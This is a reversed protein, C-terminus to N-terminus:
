LTSVGRKQVVVTACQNAYKISENINKTEIYKKVLGALFTDGAGSLDKVQAEKVPYKEGLHEAGEAGLTIILKERVSDTIGQSSGYEANNIKIYTALDCWKGIPKKTDLFTLSHQKCIRRIDQKTLYGKNYDSIIVASYKSFDVQSLDCRGYQDEGSDMRLFMYNTNQEVIRTKTITEWSSNTCIDYEVGLSKMNMAVNMAMGGNVVTNTAQVIPVPAAPELREVKGYVFVDKCSEGIILVKM